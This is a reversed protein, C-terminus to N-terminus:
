PQRLELVIAKLKAHSAQVSRTRIEPDDKFAQHITFREYSNMPPLEEATGTRKVQAAKQRISELFDMQEKQKYGEVDIILRPRHHPTEAVEPDHEQHGTLRNLMYQLDELTHGDRGILRGPDRTRINLLTQNETVTEEVEFVFGLHGLMLELMERPSLDPSPQM